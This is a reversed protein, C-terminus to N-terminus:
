FAQFNLYDNRQRISLSIAYIKLGEIKFIQDKDEVPICKSISTFWDSTNNTLYDNCSKLTEFHYESIELFESNRASSIKFKVQVHFHDLQCNALM